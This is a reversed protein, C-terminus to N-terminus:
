YLILRENIKLKENRKKLYYKCKELYDPNITKYKEFYYKQNDEIKKLYRLEGNNEDYTIAIKNTDLSTSGDFYYHLANSLNLFNYQDKVEKKFKEFKKSNKSFYAKKSQDIADEIIWKVAYIHANEQVEEDPFPKNVIKNVNRVYEARLQQLIKTFEYRIKTYKKLDNKNSKIEKMLNKKENSRGNKELLNLTIYIDADINKIHNLFENTNGFNKSEFLKNREFYLSSEIDKTGDLLDMLMILNNYKINKNCCILEARDPNTMTGAANNGKFLYILSKFTKGMFNNKIFHNFIKIQMENLQILKNSKVCPRKKLEIDLSEFLKQRWKFSSNEEIFHSKTNYLDINGQKLIFKKAHIILHNDIAILFEGLINLKNNNRGSSVPIRFFHLDNENIKYM